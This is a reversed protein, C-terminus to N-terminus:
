RVGRWAVGRWNRQALCIVVDGGRGPPAVLDRIIRAPDEKAMAAAAEPTAGFGAREMLHAARAGNWDAATIPTLDGVWTAGGSCTDAARAGASLGAFLAVLLAAKFIPYTMRKGLTPHRANSARTGVASGGSGAKSILM